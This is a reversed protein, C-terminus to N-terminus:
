GCRAARMLGLFRQALWFTLRNLRINLFRDAQEKSFYAVLRDLTVRRGAPDSNVQRWSFNVGYGSVEKDRYIDSDAVMIALLDAGYLSFLRFLKDSYEGKTEFVDPVGLVVELYREDASKTAAHTFFGIGGVSTINNAFQLNSTKPNRVIQEVLKDINEKYKLAIHRAKPTSYYSAPTAILGVQSSTTSTDDFAACGVVVSSIVAMVVLNFRHLGM